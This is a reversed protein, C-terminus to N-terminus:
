QLFAAVPRYIWFKGSTMTNMNIGSIIVFRKGNINQNALKYINKGNVEYIIATHDPNGLSEYRTVGGPLKATLRVSSFQIIDGPKIEEADPDLLKGFQVPRTWDAGSSDLAEQALDWCEGSGVTKGIVTEVYELVKSNLSIGSFHAPIISNSRFTFSCLGAYTRTFASQKGFIYAEYEGIGDKILYKFDFESKNKMRYIIQRAPLAGNKNRIKIMLEKYSSNGNLPLFYSSEKPPPTLTFMGAADGYYKVATQKEPLNVSISPARSFILIAIVCVTAKAQFKKERTM